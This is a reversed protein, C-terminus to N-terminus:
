AAGFSAFPPTVNGDASVGVVHVTDKSDFFSGDAVFGAAAAHAAAVTGFALVAGSTHVFTSTTLAATVARTVLIVFM